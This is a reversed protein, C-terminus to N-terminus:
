GIQASNSQWITTTTSDIWILNDSDLMQLCFPRGSGGNNTGSAWQVGNPSSTYVVLNRDTQGVLYATNATSSQSAGWIRTSTVNHYGYAVYIGFQNYLMGAAYQQSTPSYIFTNNTFQFGGSSTACISSPTVLRIISM